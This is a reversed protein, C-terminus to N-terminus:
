SSDEWDLTGKQGNQEAATLVWKVKDSVLDQDREGEPTCDVGVSVTKFLDEKSHERAVSDHKGDFLWSSLLTEQDTLSTYARLDLM